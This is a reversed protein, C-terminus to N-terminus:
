VFATKQVEHAAGSFVEPKSQANEKLKKEVRKLRAKVMGLQGYEAEFVEPSLRLEALRKECIRYARMLRKYVCSRSLGIMVSIDSVSFGAAFKTLILLEEGSLLASLARRYLKLTLLRQKKDSLEIIREYQEMTDGFPHLAVREIERELKAAATNVSEALNFLLLIWLRM